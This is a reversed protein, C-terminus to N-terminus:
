AARVTETMALFNKMIQEGHETFASEPHFQVSEVPLSTHRLGMVHGDAETRATVVLGAPLSPEHVVLSDYRAATMPSPVGAFLRQGDHVVSILKGHMPEDLPALGAGFADAIGHHGDGIGLM